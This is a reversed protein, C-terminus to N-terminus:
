PTTPVDQTLLFRSAAGHAKALEIEHSSVFAGVGEEALLKGGWLIDGQTTDKFSTTRPTELFLYPAPWHAEHPLM